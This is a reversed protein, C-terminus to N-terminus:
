SELMMKMSPNDKPGVNLGGTMYIINTWAEKEIKKWEKFDYKACEQLQPNNQTVRFM